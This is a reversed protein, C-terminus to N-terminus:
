HRLKFLFLPLYIGSLYKQGSSIDLGAYGDKVIQMETEEVLLDAQLVPSNTLM